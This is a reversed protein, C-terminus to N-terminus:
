DGGDGVDGAACAADDVVEFRADEPAPGPTVAVCEGVEVTADSPDHYTCPATAGRDSSICVMDGRIAMVRGRRTPAGDESRGCGGLAALALALVLVPLRPRRM